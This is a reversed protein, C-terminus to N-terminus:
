RRSQGRVEKLVKQSERLVANDDEGRSDFLKKIYDEQPQGDAGQDFFDWTGFGTPTIPQQPPNLKDFLAAAAQLDAIGREQALKEIAVVGDDTYGQARLEGKAKEWSNTFESVRAAREREAKDDAIQKQLTTLQESIEALPASAREYDGPPANPLAIKKAEILKAAAKPNKMIEHVAGHIARYNLLETEDIEVKPM